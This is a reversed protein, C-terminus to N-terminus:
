TGSLTARHGAPEAVAGVPVTQEATSANQEPADAIGPALRMGMSLSIGRTEPLLLTAVIALTYGILSVVGIAEDLPIHQALVGVLAVCLAGVGKGFNYAFAQGSGRVATPFLETFYPGLTSYSGGLCFGFPFSLVLLMSDSLPLYIYSLTVLWSCVSVLLFNRRRGILDTLYASGVFGFFSGVTLVTMYTGVGAVSLHRVTKMFTPLWPIIASGAGIVGLALLSSLVTIRIVDPRFIGLFGPRDGSERELRRTQKFVEPEELVRRLVIVLLAPLIGIWLLVRWAYDPPLLMFGLTSLLTAATWGVGYGSQVCGVAKGRHEPRIIEGMLVAGAAWEGGFGFGQLVRLILMQNFDQAFGALATFVAFWLVTIQMIRVRGFRDALSGSIWGGIATAILSATGLYGAEGSTIHWTAMLAPILFSFMQADMADLAWGGFCAWFTNRERQSLERYWRLM